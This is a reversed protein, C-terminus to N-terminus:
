QHSEDKRNMCDYENLKKTRWSSNRHLIFQVLWYTNYMKQLPALEVKVLTHDDMSKKVMEKYYDSIKGVNVVNGNIIIEGIIEFDTNINEGTLVTTLRSEVNKEGFLSVQELIQAIAPNDNGDHMVLVLPKFVKKRKKSPPAYNNNNGSNNLDGGMDDDDDDDNFEDLDDNLSEKKIGISDGMGYSGVNDDHDPGISGNHCIHNRKKKGCIGCKYDDRKRPNRKPIRPFPGGKLLPSNQLIELAKDVIGIQLLNPSIELREALKQKTWLHYLMINPNPLGELIM